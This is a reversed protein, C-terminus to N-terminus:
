GRLAKSVRMIDQRTDDEVGKLENGACTKVLTKDTSLFFVTDTVKHREIPAM